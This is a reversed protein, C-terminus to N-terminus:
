EDKFEWTKTEPNFEEITSDMHLRVRKGTTEDIADVYHDGDSDYSEVDVIKYKKKPLIQRVLDKLRFSLVKVEDEQDVSLNIEVKKKAM